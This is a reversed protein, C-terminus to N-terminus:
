YNVATVADLDFGSSGTGSLSFNESTHRIPRGASDRMAQDGTSILRIFRYWQLDPRGLAATDFSDGGSRTPDTPDDGTTANVGAFGQSYYAPQTLNAEGEASASVRCPFRHWQGEFLAVEVVAPEMFRKNPDNDRFFVNEFVTFDPGTASEVINDTFELVISGGGSAHAHLSLVHNPLYAPAYTSAGDPPGTVNSPVNASGYGGASLPTFVAVRDAYPDGSEGPVGRTRNMPLIKTIAAAYPLWQGDTTIATLEYSYSEGIRLGRDVVNTGTGRYIEIGNRKLSVSNVPAGLASRMAEYQWALGAKERSPIVLLGDSIPIQFMKDFTLGNADTVQIQFEFRTAVEPALGSLHGDESVSWGSPLQGGILMWRYPKVGGEAEFTGSYQAGPAAPALLSPTVIDLGGKAMVVFSRDVQTVSDSLSVRLEHEGPKDFTGTIVGSDRDCAWGPPALTLTWVYPQAGGSGALPAQYSQGPTGEPLITTLIELPDASAIVLTTAASAETGEADRVYVNMPLSIPQDSMGTLEGTTANLTFGSANGEIKMSWSYPPMGGIAVFRHNMWEEVRVPDPHPTMIMLPVQNLRLGGELPSDLNTLGSLDFVPFWHGHSRVQRNLGHGGRGSVETIGLPLLDDLATSEGRKLFRALKDQLSSTSDAAGKLAVSSSSDTSRSSVAVGGTYYGVWAGGLVMALLFALIFKQTSSRLRPSTM